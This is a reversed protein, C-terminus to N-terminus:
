NTVQCQNQIAEIEYFSREDKNLIQSLLVYHSWSLTFPASENQFLSKLQEPDSIASPTQLKQSKELAELIQRVSHHQRYALYFNRMSALNRASFGKGLTITLDQSLQKLIEQGYTARAAGKQEHEVIYHGVLFYALTMGSNVQQATWQRAAEILHTIQNALAENPQSKNAM